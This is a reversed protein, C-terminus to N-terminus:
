CDDYEGTSFPTVAIFGLPRQLYNPEGGSMVESVCRVAIVYASHWRLLSTASEKFNKKKKKGEQFNMLFSARGILQVLAWPWIFM